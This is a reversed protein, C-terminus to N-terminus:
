QAAAFADGEFDIEDRRAHEFGGALTFLGEVPGEREGRECEDHGGDDGDAGVFVFQHSSFDVHGFLGYGHIVGFKHM